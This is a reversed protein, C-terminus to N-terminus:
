FKQNTPKNKKAEIEGDIKSLEIRADAQRLLEHIVWKGVESKRLSRRKEGDQKFNFIGLDCLRRIKKYSLGSGPINIAQTATIWGDLDPIKDVLLRVRAVAQACASVKVQDTRM